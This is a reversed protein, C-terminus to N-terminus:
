PRYVEADQALEEQEKLIEKLDKLYEKLIPNPKSLKAKKSKKKREM